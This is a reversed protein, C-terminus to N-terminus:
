RLLTTKVIRFAKSIKEALNSVGKRIWSFVKDLLEKIKIWIRDFFSHVRKVGDTIQDLWTTYIKLQEEYNSDQPNPKKDIAQTMLDDVKTNVSRKLDEGAKRLEALKNNMERDLSIIQARSTLVDINESITPKLLGEVYDVGNEM